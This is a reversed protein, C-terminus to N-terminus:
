SLQNCLFCCGCYYRSWREVLPIWFFWCERNYRWWFFSIENSSAWFDCYTLLKKRQNRAAVDVIVTTDIGYNLWRIAYVDFIVTNIDIGSTVWNFGFADVKLNFYRACNNWNIEFVDVIVTTDIGCNLWNIGFFDVKVTTGKISNSLSNNSFGSFIVTHVGYKNLNVASVDVIM